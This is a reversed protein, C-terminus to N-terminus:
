TDEEYLNSCMNDELKVQWYFLICKFLDTRFIHYMFEIVM